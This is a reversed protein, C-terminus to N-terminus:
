NIRISIKTSLRSLFSSITLSFVASGIMVAILLGLKETKYGVIIDIMYKSAVSSVLGLTSSVIGLITYFAIVGKYRKSYGFIWKWDDIIEQFTGDKVKSHLTSLSQFM